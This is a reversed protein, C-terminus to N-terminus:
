KNLKEVLRNVNSISTELYRLKTVIDKVDEKSVQEVLEDLICVQNDIINRLTDINSLVKNKVLDKYEKVELETKVKDLEQKAKKLEEYDEPVIEKEIVKPERNELEKIKKKAEELEKLYNEGAEKKAKELEKKAREVESKAKEIEEETSKKDKTIRTLNEVMESLDKDLEKIKREKDENEKKILELQKKLEEENKRHEKIEALKMSNISEYMMNYLAKQVEESMLAIEQAKGTAIKGEEVLKQYEPILKNLQDLREIKRSNMGMDKAIHETAKGTLDGRKIKEQYIEKERKIARALEMDNLKRAKTNTQLMILEADLDDVSMIRCPVKDIGLEIAARTRRHGALIQYDEAIKRVIVPVLIGLEKISEKLTEFEQGETRRFIDDNKPHEKLVKPDLLRVTVDNKVLDQHNEVQKVQQNVVAGIGAKKKRAM